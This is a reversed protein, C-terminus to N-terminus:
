IQPFEKMIFFIPNECLMSGDGYQTVRGCHTLLPTAQFVDFISDVQEAVMSIIHSIRYYPRRRCGKWEGQALLVYMLKTGYLGRIVWYEYNTM